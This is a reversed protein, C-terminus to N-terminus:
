PICHSAKIIYTYMTFHNGCDFSNVYGESGMTLMKPPPRHSSCKHNVTQAFKLYVHNDDTTVLSCM